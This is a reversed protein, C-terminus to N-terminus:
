VRNKLSKIRLKIEEKTYGDYKPVKNRLEIIAANIDEISLM